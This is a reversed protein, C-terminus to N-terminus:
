WQPVRGALAATATRRSDGHVPEIRDVGPSVFVTEGRISHIPSRGTSAPPPLPAGSRWAAWSAAIMRVATPAGARRRRDDVRGDRVAEVVPILQFQQGVGLPSSRSCAASAVMVM